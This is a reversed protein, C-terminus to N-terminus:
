KTTWEGTKPKKLVWVEFSFGTHESVLHSFSGMVLPVWARREDDAKPWLIKHFEENEVDLGIYNGETHWYPFGRASIANYIDVRHEKKVDIGRWANDVGVTPIICHIGVHKDKCVHVVRYDGQLHQMHQGDLHPADGLLM